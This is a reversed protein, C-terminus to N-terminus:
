KSFTPKINRVFRDPTPEVFKARWYSSVQSSCPRRGSVVPMEIFHSDHDAAFPVPQPTGHIIFALNEVKQYLRFAIGSRRQLQHTFEQPFLTPCRGPNHSVDGLGALYRRIRGTLGKLIGLTGLGPFVSGLPGRFEFVGQFSFEVLTKVCGPGMASTRINQNGPSSTVMMLPTKGAGDIRVLTKRPSPTLPM